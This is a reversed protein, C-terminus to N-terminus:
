RPGEKSESDASYITENMMDAMQQGLVNLLVIIATEGALIPLWFTLTKGARHSSHVCHGQKGMLPSCSRSTGAM